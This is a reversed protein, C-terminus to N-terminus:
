GVDEDQAEIDRRCSVTGVTYGAPRTSCCSLATRPDFPHILICCYLSRCRGRCGGTM